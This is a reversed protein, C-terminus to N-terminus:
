GAVTRVYNQTEPDIPLSKLARNDFVLDELRRSMDGAATAAPRSSVPVALSPLAIRGLGAILPLSHRRTLFWPLFLLRSALTPWLM